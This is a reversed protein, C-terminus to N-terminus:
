PRQLKLVRSPLVLSSDPGRVTGPEVYDRVSAGFRDRPPIVSKLSLCHGGTLTELGTCDRTFYYLYLKEANQVTGAYGNATGKLDDNSLDAAGKLVSVQNIGLGVYTANGTETGLTGALAYVEGKDLSFPGAFQYTTDWNDLLCSQGNSICLQGVLSLIPTQMDQFVGARDSCDVRACPSGWKQSVAYLLNGLDNGLPREDVAKRKELSAITFPPYPVPRRSSSRDRVRLVVMPLDSRWREAAAENRPHAFRLITTFDDASQDLGLKRDSPIQETFVDADRISQAAFAKRVAGDMFQDPTIVFYRITGFSSGSGREIVVNNVPNSISALAQVREPHDPVTAFLINALASYNKVIAQYRESETDFTGERSFVWSQESFYAAPPPLKALIVIAERQDLRYIDNYGEQSEGWLSGLWPDFEEDSWPPLAMAVYPAAPNNGFCLGMKLTTYTCQDATWLKFYGRGVEFGQRKLDRVLRQAQGELVAPVRNHWGSGHGATSLDGGRAGFHFAFLVFVVLIARSHNV